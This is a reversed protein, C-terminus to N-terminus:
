LTTDEQVNGEEMEAERKRLMDGWHPGCFYMWMRRGTSDCEELQSHVGPREWGYICCPEIGSEEVEADKVSERALRHLRQSKYRDAKRLLREGECRCQKELIVLTENDM